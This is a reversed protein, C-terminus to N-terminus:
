EQLETKNRNNITDKATEKNKIEPHSFRSLGKQNPHGPANVGGRGGLIRGWPV